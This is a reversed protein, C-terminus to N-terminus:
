VLFSRKNRPGNRETLAAVHRATDHSNHSGHVNINTTNNVERAGGRSGRAGLPEIHWDEHRMPFGLGYEKAHEHIYQLAQRNARSLDAAMGFEHQSHGPRGVWKGSRDSALWLKMQHEYSRYGSTVQVTAGTAKKTADLLRSLNSKFEPNFGEVNVGARHPINDSGGVAAASTGPAPAAGGGIQPVSFTAKDGRALAAALKPNFKSWNGIGGHRLLYLAVRTQEEDTGAMAHTATIQPGGQKNLIETIKRWNSTLMQYYGQATYGKAQDPTVGTRAGVTNLINRGGSEHERILGLQNREADTMGAIDPVATSGGPAVRGPMRGAGATGTRPAGDGGAGAGDAGPRGGEGSGNIGETFGMSKLVQDAVILLVEQLKEYVAEALDVIPRFSADGSWWNKFEELIDGGGVGGGGPRSFLQQLGMSINAPLVMEGEHLGARVIGGRQYKKEAGFRGKNFGQKERERAVEDVDRGFYSGYPDTVLEEAEQKASTARHGLQFKEILWWLGAVSAIAATIPLLLAGAAAAGIGAFVTVAAGTIAPGALWIAATIAIAWEPGVATSLEGFKGVLWGVVKILGIVAEKIINLDRIFAERNDKDKFFDRLRDFIDRFAGLVREDTLWETLYEFLEKISDFNESVIRGIGLSVTEAFEDWAETAKHADESAKKDDLHMRAAIRQRTALRDQFTKDHVAAVRLAEVDLNEIGKLAEKLIAAPSGPGEYGGGERIKDVYLQRLKLFAEGADAVEGTFTKLYESKGATRLTEALGGIIARTQGGSIGVGKLAYEIEALMKAPVDMTKSALYLSDFSRMTRRVAEEVGVALGLLALRFENVHRIGHEMTDKFRKTSAQDINFGLKVVFNEITAAM